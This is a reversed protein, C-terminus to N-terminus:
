FLEKKANFFYGLVVDKNVESVNNEQKWNNFENLEKYYANRSKKPLLSSTVEEVDKAIKEMEILIELASTAKQLIKRLYYIQQLCVFLKDYCGSKVSYFKQTKL